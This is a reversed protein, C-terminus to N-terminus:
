IARANAMYQSLPNNYNDYSKIRGELILDEKRKGRLHSIVENLDLIDPIILPAARVYEPIKEKPIDKGLLIGLVTKDYGYGVEFPVWKSNATNATIICLMHSSNEIGKCISETVKEPDDNQRALRLDHDYEDFYVDVGAAILYDAVCKAINRDGKQHSIFVCKIGLNKRHKRESVALSVSARNIGTM